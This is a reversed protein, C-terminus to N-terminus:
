KVNGSNGIKSPDHVDQVNSCIAVSGILNIEYHKMGFRCFLNMFTLMDQQMKPM